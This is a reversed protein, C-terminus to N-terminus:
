IMRELQGNTQPHFFMSFTLNSGLEKHSMDWFKSIYKASQEFQHYYVGWSNDYDIQCLDKSITPLHLRGSSSFRSGVEDVSGNEGLYDYKGLTKPLRVMFDMAINKIEVYTDADELTVRLDKINTSGKTDM